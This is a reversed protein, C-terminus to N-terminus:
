RVTALIDDVRDAADSLLRDLDANEETLVAQMVGDLVTYIQQANPPEVLVEVEDARDLFPQYNELPVNAYEEHIADVIRQSEGQWLNPQPLGVPIGAEVANRTVEEEREPNLYKWRVWTLGARIEEPSADPNVMFGDGGGLTAEGPMAALGFEDYEREFQKVITPINDPGALYMGLQGSGMMRQVDAIELLQRTGMSDDEWRMAHLAELAARGAEDDFAARWGDGDREAVQGGMSYIWATLHWGGQNNKSYDAFGVIDEGLASIERAATRVEDWTEPPQDPDLGAERFLERNYLLGMSYNGTPLGYARGEDDRFVDRLEPRVDALEPFEDLYDTIDAAQGREILGAPDTFYVYFVDELQGGALKATFTEPDMLGERADIRIDPHAAEFAAIDDEFNQRDIAQTEPPLGNVSVTVVGDEQSSSSSGCATLGLVLACATGRGAFRRVHSGVM